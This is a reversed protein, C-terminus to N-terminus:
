AAVEKNETDCFLSRFIDCLEKNHLVAFEM